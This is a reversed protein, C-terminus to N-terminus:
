LLRRSLYRVAQWVALGGVLTV